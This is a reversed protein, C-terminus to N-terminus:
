RIIVLVGTYTKPKPIADYKFAYYYTGDPLRQGGRSIGAFAEEVNKYTNERFV